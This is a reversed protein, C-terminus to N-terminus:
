SNKAARTARALVWVLGGVFAVISGWYFAPTAAGLLACILSVLFTVAAPILAAAHGARWAAASRKLAPIRIGFFHNLPIAGRGAAFSAISLLLLLATFVWALIALEM